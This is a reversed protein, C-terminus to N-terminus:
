RRTALGVTPDHDSRFRNAAAAVPKPVQVTTFPRGNAIVATFVDMFRGPDVVFADSVAGTVDPDMDIGLLEYVPVLVENISATDDLVVVGGIHAAGKTLRQGVGMVKRGNMHVSYDGPCYEGPIQGIEAHLGFRSLTEVVAGSLWRFRDHMSTAPSEVAHTYGFRVTAPHFVAARGGAIRVTPDFGSDVVSRVAASFGDASTDHKGFAVVRHSLGVEFTDGLSGDAVARLIARSTATDLPGDGTLGDRVIHLTRSPDSHM